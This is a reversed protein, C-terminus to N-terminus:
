KSEHQIIFRYCNSQTGHVLQIVYLGDPLDTVDLSTNALRKVQATLDRGSIDTIRWATNVSVEDPLQLWNTAPNPYIFLASTQPLFSGTGNPSGGFRNFFNWIEQSANIDRNTNGVGSSGLDGPWSHGGSLVKLLETEAGTTCSGYVHREVTSGDATNSDPLPEVSPTGGCANRQAWFDMTSEVAVNAFGGGYSVVADATGHIQLVPVSNSPNCASFAASSMTGSVAAIARIRYSLECALRHSMFAGASFGCAYVRTTDIALEAQLSDILTNLFGVDDATSGGPFGSNTNWANGVGDAYAVVFNQNEALANFGSFAMIASSNQTFGHLVFVLPPRFDAPLNSPVYLIFNRQQGQFVMTRQEQGSSWFPFILLLLLTLLRM